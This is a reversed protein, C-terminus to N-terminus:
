PIATKIGKYKMGSRIAFTDDDDDDDILAIVQLIYNMQINAKLM